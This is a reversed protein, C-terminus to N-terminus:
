RAQGAMTEFVAKTENDDVVALEGDVASAIARTSETAATESTAAEFVRYQRIIHEVYMDRSWAITESAMLLRM